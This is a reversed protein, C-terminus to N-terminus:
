FIYKLAFQMQRAQNSTRTVRGGAATDVQTNPVDFYVGNLLNFAEARFELTSGQTVSFRKFLSADVNWQHDARLFNRGSDGFTFQAPLTFASKDFWADFTPHDLEGSGIRNPRQGGVGINAVDRSITPTLPVGSRYSIISQWQWGGVLANTLGEANRLLSRGKGFPLAYGVSSSFLHPVDFSSPGRDYTYNGGIGPAPERTTSRSFTYSVLYWLGNAARRQFKAQLAHYDSSLAQSHISVNGFRPYPRRAQVSGPGAEPLNIQEAQQQNSGKTGVYNLELATRAFLEQQIGANWRQDYGMRAHLPLPSWSVTGVSTGFPAGLYFNALTRTPVVNPTATVSESLSFPIFNFNLRGSTGEAEYFVGYGGRLVTRDGLPRWALGVRPAIQRTDNATITIPVGAQSSTQILDRFLAYGVDAMPQADLDIQDTESSVIIPKDRSPDFAAAQNRYGTLWPTYEYRLGVNLTLDNSVKLDDQVFGHWYTGSGGWWTAPNSRTANAPYGLMWDAFGDGTGAPAAPNQTMIGTFNFVGNHSRADTFLINRRYIRGGFKLIHRGTIWTLNDTLEYEGRNQWKPRGDNANGSFGQYGSFTFAPLSAIDPDQIVEHGTVGAQQLLQVGQGQFYATSRYEGYMRSFRFEHVMARGVNSTLALALNWAPGKLRTSGLTLFASPTEETSHHQSFRAFFRNHSNIEQDVRLTVQNADFATIPTSVFTGDASNPLPIYQNFFQAQPSLRERPIVNNPFPARVTGAGSPGAGTTLPDYIPALGRFDGMRQAASPVISVNVNGQSRRQGEYGAFFFTKKRGDYVGPIWVPGGLTSGFQNRELEEKTQAFFNKADFADNRVFEFLSGHFANSGSKTVANFTAGAGHFEASYANQHVSFEQLADVSTQIWTGGQHEETVDVGDLLFRTQWGSVGGIINGNVLEPRVNQVNGTPALLAAGPTLRALEHFSRGNLPLDVIQENTIVQSLTASETNLLPSQATVQVETSIASLSLALEVRVSQGVTLVVGDRVGTQFGAIEASVRYTGPDLPTVVYDGEASTTVTRAVNTAPNTVTITAGPIGAHQQDYVTGLIRGAQVQAFVTTGGVTCSVALLTVCALLKTRM